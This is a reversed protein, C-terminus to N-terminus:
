FACELAEFLPRGFEIAPNPGSLTISKIATSHYLYCVPNESYKKIIPVRRARASVFLRPSNRRPDDVGPPGRSLPFDM